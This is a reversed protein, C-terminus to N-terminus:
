PPNLPARPTVGATSRAVLTQIAGFAGLLVLPALQAAHYVLAFAVAHSHDVGLYEAGLTAGLELSGINGPAAPLVLAVNVMLLLLILDALGRHIDFSALTCGIAALDILWASVSVGLAAAFRRPENFARIGKIFTGRGEVGGRRVFRRAALWGMLLTVAIAAGILSGQLRPLPLPRGLLPLLLAVLALGLVEVVKDTLLVGASQPLPVQHNRRLLWPRLVEATRFPALLSAAASAITYRIMEVVSVSRGPVPGMVIWWGIGRVCLHTVALCSTLLLLSWRASQLAAALVSRDLGRVVFWIAGATVLIALVRVLITRLRNVSPRM